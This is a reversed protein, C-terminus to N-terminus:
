LMLFMASGKGDVLRRLKIDADLYVILIETTLLSYVAKSVFARAIASRDATPRGLVRDIYPLHTEIQALELV